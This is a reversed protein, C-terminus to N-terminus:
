QNVFVGREDDKPAILDIWNPDTGIPACIIDSPPFKGNVEEQVTVQTYSSCFNIALICRNNEDNMDNSFIKGDSLRKVKIDM